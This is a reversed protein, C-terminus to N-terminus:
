QQCHGCFATTRGGLSIGSVSRGCRLCPSGVR